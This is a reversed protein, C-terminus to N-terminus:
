QVLVDVLIDSPSDRIMDEVPLLDNFARRRSTIPDIIMPVTLEENIEIDRSAIFQVLVNDSKLWTHVRM